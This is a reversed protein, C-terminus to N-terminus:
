RDADVKGWATEVPGDERDLLESRWVPVSAHAEISLRVKGGGIEVVTVKAQTPGKGIVLSERRKRAIVLRGM